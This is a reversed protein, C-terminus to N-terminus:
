GGDRSHIPVRKWWRGDRWRPSNTMGVSRRCKPCTVRVGPTRDKAIRPMKVREHSGECAGAAIARERETARM